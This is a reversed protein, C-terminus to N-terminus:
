FWLNYCKDTKGRLFKYLLLTSIMIFNTNKNLTVWVSMRVKMVTTPPIYMPLAHFNITNIFDEKLYYKMLLVTVASIGRGRGLPIPKPASLTAQKDAGDAAGL